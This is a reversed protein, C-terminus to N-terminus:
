KPLRQFDAKNVLAILPDKKMAPLVSNLVQQADYSSIPINQVSKRLMGASRLIDKLVSFDNIAEPSLSRVFLRERCPHDHGSRRLVGEFTKVYRYSIAERLLWEIRHLYSCHTPDTGLLVFRVNNQEMWHYVSGDGWADNPMLNAVDRSAPGQVSFSFFASLTRVSGPRKRFAESIVGTTGPTNDLDCVGSRYGGSFAPMMICRSGVAGIVVDLLEQVVAADARGMARFFPWAASFIVVPRTDAGLLDRLVFDLEKLVSV